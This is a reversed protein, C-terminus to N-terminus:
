LEIEELAREIEAEKGKAFPGIAADEGMIHKALWTRLFGLLEHVVEPEGGGRWREAFKDVTTALKQHSARHQELDPYDCAMMVAEERKFHYLTYDTLESLVADVDDKALTRDTLKDLFLILTKHDEDIADIGVSLNDEWLLEGPKSTLPMEIWFTSGLGKESEFGIRGNMREVLQKSVALGIGTGETAKMPDSELRHFIEFVDGHHKKAIGIGSDTIAIRLYGDDTEQSDLIVRGDDVNYKVANSLLNILIQKLRLADARIRFPPKNAMRNIVTIHRADAAPTILMISKNIVDNSYIYEMSLVIQDAEIKVLDLVDNVLELLHEGGAIIDDMYEAQMPSLPEKPNLKLMQGFGLIANLPTRLEHSMAALFDAKAQNALEAEKIRGELQENLTNLDEYSTKLSLRMANIAVVLENLEDTDDPREERELTLKQNINDISFNNAYRAMRSMHRTIVRHVTIYIIAALFFIILTNSALIFTASQVAKTFTSDLNAVITFRGLQHVQGRYEHSLGTSLVITETERKRGITAIAQGAVDTVEAYQFDPLNAIGQLLTHLQRKDFLWMNEAMTPAYTDQILSFRNQIDGLNHDHELKVQIATAILSVAISFIVILLMLKNALRKRPRSNLQFMM